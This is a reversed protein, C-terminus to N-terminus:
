NFITSNIIECNPYVNAAKEEADDHNEALCDFFLVFKDGKEENLSVRFDKLINKEM